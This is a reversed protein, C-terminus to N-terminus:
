NLIESFSVGYPMAVFETNFKHQNLKKAILRFVRGISSDKGNKRELYQIKLNKNM